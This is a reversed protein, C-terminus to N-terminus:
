SFHGLPSPVLAAPRRRVVTVVRSTMRRRGSQRLCSGPGGLKGSRQRGKGGQEVLFLIFLPQPPHTNKHAQPALSDFSLKARNSDHELHVCNRFLPLTKAGVNNDRTTLDSM